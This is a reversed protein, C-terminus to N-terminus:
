RELIQMLETYVAICTGLVFQRIIYQAFWRIQDTVASYLSVADFMICIESTFCRANLPVHELFTRLISIYTFPASDSMQDSKLTM